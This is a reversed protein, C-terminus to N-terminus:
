FYCLYHLCFLLFFYHGLKIQIKALLCSPLVCNECCFSREGRFLRADKKEGRPSPDAFSFDFSVPLRSLVRGDIKIFTVKSLTVYPILKFDRSTYSSRVLRNRTM